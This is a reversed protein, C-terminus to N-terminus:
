NIRAVDGIIHGFIQYSAYLSLIKQLQLLGKESLASLSPTIEFIGPSLPCAPAIVEVDVAKDQTQLCEIALTPM